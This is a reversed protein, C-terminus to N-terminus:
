NETQAHPLDETSASSHLLRSFHSRTDCSREAWSNTLTSLQEHLGPYTLLLRNTATVADTAEDILVLGTLAAQQLLTWTSPQERKLYEVLGETEAM